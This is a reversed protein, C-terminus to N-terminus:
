RVGADIKHADPQVIFEVSRMIWTPLPARILCARGQPLRARRFRGAPTPVTQGPERARNAVHHQMSVSMRQWAAIFKPDASVPKRALRAKLQDGAAKILADAIRNIEREERENVSANREVDLRQDALRDVFGAFRFPVSSQRPWPRASSRILDVGALHMRPDSM